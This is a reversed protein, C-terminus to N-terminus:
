GNVIQNLIWKVMRWSFLVPKESVIVIIKNGVVTYSGKFRSNILPLQGSFTGKVSDGEFTLKRRKAEERIQTLKIEPDEPLIFEFRRAM